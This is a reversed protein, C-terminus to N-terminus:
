NDISGASQIDKKVSEPSGHYRVKSASHASAELSTKPSVEMSSAEKSIAKVSVAELEFAHLKSASQCNAVLELAKGKLTGTSASDGSYTIKDATGSWSGQSAESLRMVFEKATANEIKVESASGAEVKQLDKVTIKVKIKQSTSYSDTASIQLQKGNVSTSLLPLLNEDATIELTPKEGEVVEVLCPTDVKLETFSSIDRKETKSVGNGVVGVILRGCGSAFISAILVSTLLIRM